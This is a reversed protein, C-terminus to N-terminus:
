RNNRAMSHLVTSNTHVANMQVKPSKLQVLHLLLFSPESTLLAHEKVPSLRLEWYWMVDSLWRYSWDQVIRYRRRLEVFVACAHPVPM